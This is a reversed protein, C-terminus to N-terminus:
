NPMEESTLHLKCSRKCGAELVGEVPSRRFFIRSSSGGRSALCSNSWSHGRNACSLILLLLFFHICWNGRQLHPQINEEGQLAISYM